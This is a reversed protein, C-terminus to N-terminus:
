RLSAQRLIKKNPPAVTQDEGVAPAGGPADAMEPVRVQDAAKDASVKKILIKDERFEFTLDSGAFIKELVKRVPTQKVSLTVPAAKGVLENNYFFTYSTQGEIKKLVSVLSARDVTLTVPSEPNAGAEAARVHGAAALVLVALAGALWRHLTSCCRELTNFSNM